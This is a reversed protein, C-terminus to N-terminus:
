QDGFSDLAGYTAARLKRVVPTTGAGRRQIFYLLTLKKDPDVFFYNGTWGDWGFEGLSAQSGARGQDVLVRMLCGYGYGRNSDWDLAATQQRSLHNTALFRVSSSGIIRRGRYIGGNSLMTAFHSYDEITSVLGCGGAEYTVDERYYECLHSDDAAVLKYGGSEGANDEPIYDYSMAFRDAKDLPVFFGTDPMQLPDFIERKLFDGFRVGAAVEIVAAIIDASLGYNWREGPEFAIPVEAIRRAVERTSHMKGLNLDGILEDFLVQMRRGSESCGEWNEGYPIGSTMTLLHMLTMPVSAPVEEYRKEGESAGPVEKLVKVDAYKPLYASVPDNLDILGREQAIMAAVATIPKTMSYLRIITDRKMPYGKEADAFGFANFYIEKGDKLVLASNGKVRGEDVEAKLLRDMIDTYNM